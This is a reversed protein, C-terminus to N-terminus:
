GAYNGGSFTRVDRHRHAEGLTAKEVGTGRALEQASLVAEPSRALHTMVVTAYDTLKSVRFM